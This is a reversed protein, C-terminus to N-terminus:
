NSITETRNVHIHPKETILCNKEDDPCDQVGDCWAAEEICEGSTPCLVTETPCKICKCSCSKLNERRLGKGCPPCVKLKCEPIGGIKCICDSCTETQYTEGIEYAM